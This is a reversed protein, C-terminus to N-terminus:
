LHLFVMLITFASSCGCLVAGNRVLKESSPYSYKEPKYTSMLHNRAHEAEVILEGSTVLLNFEAEPTSKRRYFILPHDSLARTQRSLVASGATGSSACNNVPCEETPNKVSMRISCKFYVVHKDAFKFAQSSAAARMSGGKYKIPSLLEGDTTCGNADVVQVHDSDGDDASCNYVQMCYIDSPADGSCTWVHVVAEGVTVVPANADSLSSTVVGGGRSVGGAVEVRYDCSPLKPEDSLIRPRPATVNLLTQVQSHEERYFCDIQYAVDRHTIIAGHYSVVLVSSMTMGRPPLIQRKRRSPCEDFRSSSLSTRAPHMFLAGKFPEDTEMMVTIGSPACKIRPEGIITAAALFTCFILSVVLKKM